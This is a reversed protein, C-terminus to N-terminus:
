KGYEYGQEKFINQMIKKARKIRVGVTSIPIAMVDAIEKYSLEELYYLLVPEKYKAGLKDFCKEIVEKMEKRDIQETIDNSNKPAAQWFFTDLEFLPLFIKKKKRLNNVFENHAIRYLWPSFRRKTDFSQINVYAKIFVEQVIDQIDENNSLFKRAYRTIKEQYRTILKGFFESKGSQVLLAIQEDSQSSPNTHM